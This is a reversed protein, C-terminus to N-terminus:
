PERDGAWEFNACINAPSLAKAACAVASSVASAVAAARALLAALPGGPLAGPPAALRPIAPDVVGASRLLPNMPNM